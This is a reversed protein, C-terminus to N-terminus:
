QDDKETYYIAYQNRRHFIFYLYLSNRKTGIYNLPRLVNDDTNNESMRRIKVVMNEIRVCHMGLIAHVNQYKDHKKRTPCWCYVARCVHHGSKNQLHQQFENQGCFCWM